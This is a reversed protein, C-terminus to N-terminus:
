SMNFNMYVRGIGSLSMAKCSFRTCFGSYSVYVKPRQGPLIDFVVLIILIIHFFIPIGETTCAKCSEDEHHTESRTFLYFFHWRCFLRDVLDIDLKGIRRLDGLTLLFDDVLDLGFMFRTGLLFLSQDIFILCSSM